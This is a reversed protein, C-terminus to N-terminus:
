LYLVQTCVDELMGQSESKQVVVGNQHFVAYGIIVNAEINLSNVIFYWLYYLYKLLFFIGEISIYKHFEGISGHIEVM